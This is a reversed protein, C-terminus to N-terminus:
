EGHQALIATLKLLDDGKIIRRRWGVQDFHIMGDLLQFKLGNAGCSVIDIREGNIVVHPRGIDELDYCANLLRHAYAVTSTHEIRDFGVPLRCYSIRSPDQPTGRLDRAEIKSLVEPIMDCALLAMKNKLSLTTEGTDIPAGRQLLVNGADFKEEMLHFTVGAESEGALIAAFEPFGGRYRPLLAPHMNIAALRSSALVSRPLIEGFSAVLIIDVAHERLREPCVSTLVESGDYVPIGHSRAVEAPDLGFSAFPCLYRPRRKQRLRELAQKRKQHSSGYRKYLKRLHHVRSRSAAYVLEVQGGSALLRELVLGGYGPYGFFAIRCSM